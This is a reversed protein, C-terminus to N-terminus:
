RSTIERGAACGEAPHPPRERLLKELVGRLQGARVPKYLIPYGSLRLARITETRTDGTILVVPVRTGWRRRVERAVMLGTEGNLLQYDALVVDPAQGSADALQEMGSVGLRTEDHSTTRRPSPMATVAHTGALAVLARKLM